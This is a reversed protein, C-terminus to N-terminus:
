GERNAWREMLSLLLWLLGFIGAGGLLCVLGLAAAGGGYILAILAGGVGVLAIVVAIALNRENKRRYARYDTPPRTPRDNM